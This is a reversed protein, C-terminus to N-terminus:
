RRTGRIVSSETFLYHISPETEGVIWRVRSTRHATSDGALTDRAAAHIQNAVALEDAQERVKVIRMTQQRILMTTFLQTRATARIRVERGEATISQALAAAATEIRM